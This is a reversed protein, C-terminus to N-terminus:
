EGRGVLEEEMRTFFQQYERDACGGPSGADITATWFPLGSARHFRAKYRATTGKGEETTEDRLIEVRVFEDRPREWSAYLSDLRVRDGLLTVRCIDLLPWVVLGMIMVLVFFAALIAGAVRRLGRGFGSSYTRVNPIRKRFCWYIFAFTGFFTVPVAVDYWGQNFSKVTFETGGEVPRVRATAIEGPLLWYISGMLVFWVGVSLLSIGIIWGSYSRAVKGTPAVYRPKINTSSM